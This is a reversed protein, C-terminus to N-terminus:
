GVEKKIYFVLTVEIETDPMDGLRTIVLENEKVEFQTLTNYAIQKDDSNDNLYMEVWSNLMEPTTAITISQTIGTAVPITVPLFTFGLYNTGQSEDIIGSISTRPFLETFGGDKQYSLRFNQAM